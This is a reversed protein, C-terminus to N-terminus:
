KETNNEAIDNLKDYNIKDLETALAQQKNPYLHGYINMTTDVKEHGLRESILFINHGMEILLSAHSHRLDHTRIKKVGALKSCREIEKKIYGKTFYFLRDTPQVGYLRSIYDKVEDYLFDPMSVDRISKPTKPTSVIEEGKVRALSKTIKLIKEDTVDAPTLALLEGERLGCWYLIEFAVYAAPKDECAIVKKYEELTWIQMSDANKKGISGTIRCPNNPLNYFKVAYNMIASLQNHITKIYTPAYDTKLMENQWMRVSTANIQSIKLKKFYPTIKTEFINKKNEITTKKLRTELDKFYEQVLMEFTIDVDRQEKNLFEREFEKAERQTKFGRKKKRKKNGMWDTYYFLAYWTGREEDKYAPM